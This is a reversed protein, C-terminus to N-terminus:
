ILLTNLKALHRGLDPDRGRPIFNSGDESRAVLSAVVWDVPVPNSERRRQAQEARSARVAVVAQRESCAGSTPSRNGEPKPCPCSDELGAPTGCCCSEHAPEQGPTWDAAGSGLLLAFALIARLVNRVSFGGSAEMM